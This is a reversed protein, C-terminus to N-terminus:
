DHSTEKSKRREKKAQEIFYNKMIGNKYIINLCNLCTVYASSNHKAIKEKTISCAHNCIYCERNKTLKHKIHKNKM